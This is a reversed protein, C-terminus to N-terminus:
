FGCQTPVLKVVLGASGREAGPQAAGVYLTMNDGLIAGHFQETMYFETVFQNAQYEGGPNAMYQYQIGIVSGAHSATVVGYGELAVIDYSGAPFDVGAVYEGEALVLESDSPLPNIRPTWNKIDAQETELRVHGRVILLIAGRRLYTNETHSPNGLPSLTAYLGMDMTKGDSCYQVPVSIDVSLDAYAEHYFNYYGAPLDFGVVWSGEHM